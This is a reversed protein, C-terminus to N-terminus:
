DDKQEALDGCLETGPCAAAASLFRSRGADGCDAVLRRKGRGGCGTQGGPLRAAVGGTHRRIHSRLGVQGGSRFHLCVTEPPESEMWAPFDFPRVCYPLPKKVGLFIVESLFRLGRLICVGVFVFFSDSAAGRPLSTKEGQPKVTEQTPAHPWPWDQRGGPSLQVATSYLPEIVCLTDSLYGM